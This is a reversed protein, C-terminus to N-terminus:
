FDYGVTAIVSREAGWYCTRLEYCSAIYTRDTLNNVNVQVYAGKLSPNWSGLDARASADFLTVSPLQLTNADDAWQKGIHRVGVGLHIGAGADYQTWLSAMQKPALVPTNGDNGDVTEKYKVKNYTYGAIVSLRETIPTRAELELGQSQVKGVPEYYNGVINRTAVDSQTLDYVAATYLAKTGPPQYKIGGEVQESSMPKLPNGQSDAYLAPTVAQSYSVYPSIGNDFAYLLAARGSFREDESQGRSDTTLNKNDFKIADYRGSLTLYWRQWQMDDQLYVGTQKYRRQSDFRYYNTVADGGSLGTFPDLGPATGSADWLTNTFYQFDVGFLTKHKVDGTDFDAELQNDVAYADLSSSEGTYYRTLTDAEVGSWGYQYIQHIDINSHTYSANQRFAWTDNFRHSFEYGYMQQRRKYDDLSEEGDFTGRAIKRGQYAYVSGAAPVSGHYGGAPDKQLYAKLLLTTDEDPQWLLSPAIAYREERPGDYMTNSSHTLGTVRFAWNDNIGQTFDFAAGRDNQTGASLRFHGEPIFQPRKSTMMVLGGPVSQGYLSSSPGKIVDIRELFWPDIQLSNHSGSDSLVRLGDLFTNNVDAGHFGRLSVTDFRTAGGSFNTFVGPTYNLAENLTTVNQDRMQQRTVVSVSQPTVVLPKDTKTAAQSTTAAYGATPSLASEEPQASVEIVDEAALVFAPTTLAVIAGYYRLLPLPSM